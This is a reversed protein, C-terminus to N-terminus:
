HGAIPDKTHFHMFVNSVRPGVARPLGLHLFNDRTFFWFLSLRLPYGSVLFASLQTTWRSIPRQPILFKSDLLFSVAFERTIRTDILPAFIINETRKANM